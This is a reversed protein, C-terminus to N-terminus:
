VLCLISLRVKLEKEMAALKTRLDKEIQMSEESTNAAGIDPGGASGEWSVADSKDVPGGEGGADSKSLKAQLEGWVEGTKGCETRVKSLGKSLVRQKYIGNEKESADLNAKTERSSLEAQAIRAKLKEFNQEAKSCKSRAEQADKESKIANAKAEQLEKEKQTIKMKAEELAKVSDAQAKQASSLDAKLGANSSKLIAM